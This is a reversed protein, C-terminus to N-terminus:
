VLNSKNALRYALYPIYNRKIQTTIITNTHKFHM